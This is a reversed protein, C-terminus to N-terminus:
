SLPTVIDTAATRTNAPKSFAAIVSGWGGKNTVILQRGECVSNRCTGSRLVLLVVLQQLRSHHPLSRNLVTLYRRCRVSSCSESAVASARQMIIPFWRDRPLTKPTCFITRWLLSKQKSPSSKCYVENKRQNHAKGKELCAASRQPAPSLSSTCRPSAMSAMYAALAPPTPM